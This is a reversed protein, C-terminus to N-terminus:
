NLFQGYLLFCPQFSTISPGTEAVPYLSFGDPATRSFDTTRDQFLTVTIEPNRNDKLMEHIAAKEVKVQCCDPRELVAENHQHAEGHPCHNQQNMTQGAPTAPEENEATRHNCCCKKPISWTELGM